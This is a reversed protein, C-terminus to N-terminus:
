RPGEKAGGRAAEDSALARRAAIEAAALNPAEGTMPFLSGPVEATWAWIRGAPRAEIRGRPDRILFVEADNDQAMTLVSSCAM